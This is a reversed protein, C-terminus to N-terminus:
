YRTVVLKSLISLLVTHYILNNRLLKSDEEENDSGIFKLRMVRFFSSGAFEYLVEIIKVM